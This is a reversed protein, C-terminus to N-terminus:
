GKARYQKVAATIITALMEDSLKQGTGADLPKGMTVAPPSTRKEMATVAKSMMSTVFILLVLFTFVTGIGMLALEIGLQM